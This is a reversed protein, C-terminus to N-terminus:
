AHTHTSIVGTLVAEIQAKTPAVNTLGDLNNQQVQVFSGVEFQGGYLGGALMNHKALVKLATTTGSTRANAITPVYSGNVAELFKGVAPAASCAGDSIFLRLGETLLVVPAIQGTTYDYGATGYDPNGEPRRGDTMQEFSGGGLVMCMVKGLKATAPKEPTYVSFNGSIVADLTEAVVLNGVSLTDDGVLVDFIYMDPVKTATYCVKGM